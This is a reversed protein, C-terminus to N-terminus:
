ASRITSLNKRKDLKFILSLLSSRFAFINLLDRSLYVNFRPELSRKISLFADETWWKKLKGSVSVIKNLLLGEKGERGM